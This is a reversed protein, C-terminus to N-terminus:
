DNITRDAIASLRRTWERKAWDAGAGVAPYLFYGNRNPPSFQRYRVSGFEAGFAPGESGGPGLKLRAKAQTSSVRVGGTRAVHAAVGGLTVARSVADDRIHTAIDVNVDKLQSRTESGFRALSRRVENVGRIQWTVADGPM